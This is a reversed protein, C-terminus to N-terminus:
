EQGEKPGAAPNVEVTTVEVVLRTDKPVKMNVGSFNVELVNQADSEMGRALQELWQRNM